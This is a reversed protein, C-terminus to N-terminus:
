KGLYVTNVLILARKVAQAVGEASVTAETVTKVDKGITIADSVKKGNFQTLFVKERIGRGKQEQFACVIVQKVTGDANVAVACWVLGHKGKGPTFATYGKVSDGEKAVYFNFTDKELAWQYNNKISALQEATLKKEEMTVTLAGWIEKNATDKSVLEAAFASGLLMSAALLGSFITRIGKM